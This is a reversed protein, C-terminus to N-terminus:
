LPSEPDQGRQSIIELLILVAGGALMLGVGWAIAHDPQEIAPVFPWMARMSGILLGTLAAMTLSHWLNLLTKLFPIFALIGAGIGFLFPILVAFDFGHLATLVIPYSGLLVLIYSGSIGPLVMASIGLFGSLFLYVPNKSGALQNDIGTLLFALVTFVAILIYEAPKHEMKRYPVSVSVLILGFFFSYTYFPFNELLFPVIRSMVLIAALIGAVLTILFNWEISLIEQRAKERVAQKPSLLALLSLAHSIKVSALAQIFHDYIGSVLAITGGSIGPVMDAMGMAVGKLALFIRNRWSRYQEM